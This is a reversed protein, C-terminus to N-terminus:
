ELWELVQELNHIVREAQRFEEDDDIFSNPIVWCKLGALSAARVGRPSDEIVLIDEPSCAVRSCALLYPEPHPKSHEYDERAVVFDVLLDFGTRVHMLDFHHRLSSTVVGVQVRGRLAELVRRAGSNEIEERLLYYKYKTDREDRLAEVTVEGKQVVDLLHWVGINDRLSYKVFESQQLEYGYRMMVDQCARFFLKETDVLVGDNDFFIAKQVM